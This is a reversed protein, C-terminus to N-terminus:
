HFLWVLAQPPMWVWNVVILIMFLVPFWMLSAWLPAGQHVLVSVFTSPNWHFVPGAKASPLGLSMFSWCFDDWSSLIGLDKLAFSAPHNRSLLFLHNSVPLRDADSPIARQFLSSFPVSCQFSATVDWFVTRSCLYIVHSCWKLGQWSINTLGSLSFWGYFTVARSYSAPQTPLTLFWLPAPTYHAQSQGLPWGLSALSWFLYGSDPFGLVLSSVWSVPNTKNWSM